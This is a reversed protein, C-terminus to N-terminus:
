NLDISGGEIRQSGVAASLIHQGHLSLQGALNLQIRADGCVLELSQLAELEVQTAQIRLRGDQIQMLPPLDPHPWAATVLYGSAANGGLIVQQGPLLGPIHSAVAAQMEGYPSQVHCINGEIRAVTACFQEFKSEQMPQLALKRM